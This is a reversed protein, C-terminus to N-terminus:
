RSFMGRLAATDLGELTPVVVDVAGAPLEVMHPVGVVFCGAARASAVGTPSDEIALCRGPAARV